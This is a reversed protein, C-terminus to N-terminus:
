KREWLASDRSPSRWICRGRGPAATVSIEEHEEAPAPHPAWAALLLAGIAVAFNMAAAVYTAVALDYVRLLYFGALLCGFVAGAINGGYFFGLWSVGSRTTEISRAIAPLTAGML